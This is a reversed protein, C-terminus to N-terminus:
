TNKDFFRKETVQAYKILEEMAIKDKAIDKTKNLKITVKEWIRDNRIGYIFQDKLIDDKHEM